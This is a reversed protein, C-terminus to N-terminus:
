KNLLYTTTALTLVFSTRALAADIMRLGAKYYGFAAISCSGTIATFIFVSYEIRKALKERQNFITIESLFENHDYKYSKRMLKISIVGTNIINLTLSHMVYM